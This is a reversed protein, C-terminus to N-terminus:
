KKDLTIWSGWTGKKINERVLEVQKSNKKRVWYRYDGATFYVWESDYVVGKVYYDGYSVHGPGFTYYQIDTHISSECITKRTCVTSCAHGSGFLWDFFGDHCTGSSQCTTESKEITKADIDLGITPDGMYPVGEWKGDFGSISNGCSAYSLTGICMLVLSTVLKRIFYKSKRSSKTSTM